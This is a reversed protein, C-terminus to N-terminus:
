PGLTQDYSVYRPFRHIRSAFLDIEPTFILYKLSKTSLRGNIMWELERHVKGFESDAIPNHKGPIYAASVWNNREICFEWLQKTFTNCLESHSTTMNNIASVCTTNDSRIRIHQNKQKKAFSKIGIFAALTELENIHWQSEEFEWDGGTPINDCVAGWGIHSADTTITLSPKEHSIM